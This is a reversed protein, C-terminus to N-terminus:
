PVIKFLDNFRNAIENILDNQTKGAGLFKDIVSQDINVGRLAEIFSEPDLSSVKKGDFIWQIENLSNANGLDNIFQRTFDTPPLPPKVSKFEYLIRGVPSEYVMDVFRTGDEAIDVEFRIFRPDLNGAFKKLYELTWNAGIQSAGNLGANKLASILVDFGTSGAFKEAYLINELLEKFIPANAGGAQQANVIAKLIAEDIGLQNSTLIESALNLINPDKRLDSKAFIARWADFLAANGKFAGIFDAGSDQVDQLFKLADDSITGDTNKFTEFFKTYFGSSGQPFKSFIDELNLDPTNNFEKWFRLLDPQKAFLDTFKKLDKVNAPDLLWNFLRTRAALDMNLDDVQKWIKLASEANASFHIARNECFINHITTAGAHNYLLVVLLLFYNKFRQLNM